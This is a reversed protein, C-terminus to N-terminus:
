QASVKANLYQTIQSITKELSHGEEVLKRLNLNPRNEKALVKIREALFEPSRRELFYTPGLLREFAENATIVSLGSAMAELVVKDISGTGSMSLFVDHDHYVAPTETYPRSGHFFVYRELGFDHVAKKLLRLYEQDRPLLPGGVISLTWSQDWTEQLIKCARIITEYDKVPSIRGLALLRLAALPRSGSSQPHFMSTDIAHGTYIVKKSPLRFSLPSATFVYDVMHEALKLSGPTSKHVYWLASTKRLSRLFLFSAVVFEPIMHFFVADSHAYHYSFLEWYNWFRRLRGRSREKGLSYIKVKPIATHARVENAIVTVQDCHRSFEEIWRHFFGLNEDEKAVKQTVILLKM